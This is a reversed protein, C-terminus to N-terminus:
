CSRGRVRQARRDGPLSPQHPHYLVATRQPSHPKACQSAGPHPPSCGGEQVHLRQTDTCRAWQQRPTDGACLFSWDSSQTSLPHLCAAWSRPALGQGFRGSGAQTERRGEWRCLPRQVWANRLGRHASTHGWRGCPSRAESLCPSGSPCRATALAQTLWPRAM